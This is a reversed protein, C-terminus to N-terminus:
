ACVEEADDEWMSFYVNKAQSDIVGIFSEVEALVALVDERSILHEVGTSSKGNRHVIDHRINTARLLSAIEPVEIALVSHYIKRVNTLRHYIMKNLYDSVENSINEYCKFLDSLKIKKESFGDENEVVKRTLSPFRNVTNTLLDSLYTEMATISNAYLLRNLLKEQAPQISARCLQKISEASSHFNDFFKTHERNIELLLDFDDCGEGGGGVFETADTSVKAEPALVELVSRAFFDFSSAVYGFKYSAFKEGYDFSFPDRESNMVFLELLSVQESGRLVPNGFHTSADYQSILSTKTVILKKIISMWEEYTSAYAAARLGDFSPSSGSDSSPSGYSRMSQAALDTCRRFDAKAADLTHGDAELRKIMNEVSAEFVYATETEDEGSHPGWELLNRQSINREFIRQDGKFFRWRIVRDKNWMVPYDDFLLHSYTGMIEEWLIKTSVPHREVRAVSPDLTGSFCCVQFVMGLTRLQRAALLPAHSPRRRRGPLLLVSAEFAETWEHPM